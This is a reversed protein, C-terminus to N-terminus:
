DSQACRLRTQIHVNPLFSSVPKRLNPSLHYVPSPSYILKTLGINNYNQSQACSVGGSPTLLLSFCSCFATLLQM